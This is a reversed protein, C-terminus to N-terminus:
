GLHQVTQTFQSLELSPSADAASAQNPPPAVARIQHALRWVVAWPSLTASHEGEAGPRVALATATVALADGRPKSCVM